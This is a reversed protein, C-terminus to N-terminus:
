RMPSAGPFSINSFNSAITASTIDSKTPQLLLIVCQESNFLIPISKLSKLFFSRTRIAASNLKLAIDSMIKPAQICGACGKIVPKRLVKLKRLGNERVQADSTMSVTNACRKCEPMRM